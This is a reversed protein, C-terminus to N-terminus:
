FLAPSFFFALIPALKEEDTKMKMKMKMKRDRTEEERVADGDGDGDIESAHMNHMKLYHNALSM